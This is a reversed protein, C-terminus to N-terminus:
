FKISKMAQLRSNCTDRIGVVTARQCDIVEKLITDWSKPVRNGNGLGTELTRMIHGPTSCSAIVDDALLKKNEGIGKGLLDTAWSDCEELHSCFTQTAKQLTGVINESLSASQVHKKRKSGPQLGAVWSQLCLGFWTMNETVLTVVKELIVGSLIVESSTTSTSISDHLTAAMLESIIALSDSLLSEQCTSDYRKVPFLAATWFIALTLSEWIAVQNDSASAQKSLWLGLDEAFVGLSRSCQLVHAKLEAAAALDAEKNGSNSTLALHLLRPLVCRLKLRRMSCFKLKKQLEQIGGLHRPGTQESSESSEILLSEDPAPSWWPRTELDENFTLANLRSDTAWDLQSRGGDLSQLVVEMEELNHAKRKLALIISEIRAVLLQHSKELKEKFTLFELVKSYTNHHYALIALDAAERRYDDHFKIIDRTMSDLAAWDLSRVLSPLIHHSMSDLLIYKVDAAKFWTWAPKTAALFSYLNVLLFRHLPHYRQLGLGLELVFIAELIFGIHKTQLYMEVLLDSVLTLFEGGLMAEQSDVEASLKVSELFLQVIEEATDLLGTKSAHAHQWGLRSEMQFAALRFRLANVPKTDPPLDQCYRHMEKILWSQQEKDIHLIFEMVDSTFSTMCGFRQFYTLISQALRASPADASDASSTLMLRRKEIGLEALYPARRVEPVKLAQLELVFTHVRQLLAETEEKRSSTLSLAELENSVQHIPNLTAELFMQFAAWDDSSNRMIEQFVDAAEKHQNLHVLLEGQLRLRDIGITLLDGSLGQLLTLADGYKRQRKLIDMYVVVGERERLGHSQHHKKIMAEALPLLKSNENDVQLLISCVAWLLFREEGAVKYLKFAVQQQKVYLYQRAYCNFLAAQYDMNKPLKLCAYEFLATAADLMNLRQFVTQLTNLTLDDLPNAAKARLALELAEDLKGLKELILAKLAFLYASDTHKALLGTVLKMASKYQRHDIADWLPKLKREPIGGRMPM